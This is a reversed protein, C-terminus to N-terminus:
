VKVFGIFDISISNATATAKECSFRISDGDETSDTTVDLVFYSYTATATHTSSAVSSADTVNYVELKVDDAVQNTDKVRVFLKYDGDPLEYDNQTLDFYVKEGSADLVDAYGNVADSDATQVGTSTCDDSDYFQGSIGGKSTQIYEISCVQANQNAMRVNRTHGYVANQNGGDISITNGAYAELYIMKRKKEIIDDQFTGAYQWPTPMRHRAIMDIETVNSSEWTMVERTHESQVERVNDMFVEISTDPDFILNSRLTM